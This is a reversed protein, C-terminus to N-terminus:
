PTAGEEELMRALAAYGRRQLGKVAAPSTELVQAVEPVTLRGFLRLLLVERQNSALRDCFRRVRDAALTRDVDAEVDIPSAVDHRDDLSEPRPRRLHRRREDALRRYTITFVWSRFSAEDGDFTDLNRLVGVFVDSTLDDPEAAGQVRLLGAVAPSLTTYIRELAWPARRRAAEIVAPFDGGFMHQATMRGGPEGAAITRRAPAESVSRPPM